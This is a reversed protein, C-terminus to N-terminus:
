HNQHSTEVSRSSQRALAKQREPKTAHWVARLMREQAISFEEGRRSMAIAATELLPEISSLEEIEGHWFRTFSPIHKPLLEGAPLIMSMVGVASGTNFMSGLGTKVHDALFCGVKKEGTAISTGGIPVSVNSYDNKLDSNTTIAGLNVWSGVYSHGLFGDHYKNSFGQFVSNEIEGGVRCMPGFSTGARLNTRFLQTGPGVYCPGEMRTFAQIVADRDIYIPGGTTDFVVFPDVKASEHVWLAHAPGVITFAQNPLAKQESHSAQRFGHDECIQQENFSVLDWPRRLIKGPSAVRKRSQALRVLSEDLHHDLLLTSELPDCVLWAIEGDVIGVSEDSFELIETPNCLWQGNLLLTHGGALWRADNVYADPHSECYTELLHPRLIAGWEDPQLVKLWRERTSFHGTLLEFVPRVWVLPELTSIASNEFIALRM